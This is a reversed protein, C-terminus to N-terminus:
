LKIADKITEEPSLISKNIAWLSIDGKTGGTLIYRGNPCVKMCKLEEHMTEIRSQNAENMFDILKISNDQLAVCVFPTNGPMLQMSRPMSSSSM